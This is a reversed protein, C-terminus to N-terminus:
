DKGASSEPAEPWPGWSTNSYGGPPLRLQRQNTGNANMIWLREQGTRTSTFIIHRGNPSWTPDFNQGTDQTLRTIDKTDPDVLFLDFVAREDRGMFVIANGRPSWKPMQNYNGQFTLREQESGDSNMVFIHPNGHRNSVFAIRRADPSWTPSTDIVGDYHTLRRAGSGSAGIVWIDATGHKTRTYAIQEGTPSWAPGHFMPDGTVLPTIRGRLDTIYLDPGDGRYSTFALRDGTPAWSPFLNLEGGVLRRPGHGDWDSIWLEKNGGTERIFAIRTDFIGREGTFYRVVDGAVRHALAREAGSEMMYNWRKAEEATTVHFLRVELVSGEEEEGPSLRARLLGEAGVNAWDEFRITATTIGEDPRALFSRPDLIQFLGSVELDFRVLETITDASAAGDEQEPDVKVRPIALPYPRFTAGSVDIYVRQAAANGPCLVAFILVSVIVPLLYNRNARLM